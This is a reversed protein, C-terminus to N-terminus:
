GTSTPADIAPREGPALSYPPVELTLLDHSKSGLDVYLWDMAVPPPWQRPSALHERKYAERRQGLWGSQEGAAEESTRVLEELKELLNATEQPAPDNATNGAVSALKELLDEAFHRVKASRDETQRECRCGKAGPREVLSEIIPLHAVLSLPPPLMQPRPKGEPSYVPDIDAIVLAQERKGLRGSNFQDPRYIGPMSGHYPGPGPMGSAKGGERGWSDHGVICSQGCGFRGAVANCFVTTVASALFSAQGLISFDESRTTMAPVLLLLRPQDPAYSLSTCRAFSLIDQNVHDQLEKFGRQPGEAFNVLLRQFGHVMGMLNAPSTVLFVESCILENTYARPDFQASTAAFEPALATVRPRFVESAAVAPYKKKRLRVRRAPEGPGPALIVPMVASWGAPQDEDPSVRLHMDPPQRYTGAWVSTSPALDPLVEVLWAATDPRISYEPLLLIDVSFAYCARLVSRLLARRRHEACSPLEDLQNWNEPRTILGEPAVSATKTGGRLCADFIPHRYTEDLEWQFLAVRAHRHAKEPRSRWSKMQRKQIEDLPDGTLATVVTPGSKVEAEAPPLAIPPEAAAVAVKPPAPPSEPPAEPEMAKTRETLPLEREGPATERPVPTDSSELDCLTALHPQVVGVALVRDGVVSQSWRFVYREGVLRQEVGGQRDGVLGAYSVRWSAFEYSGSNTELRVSGKRLDSRLRFLESRRSEVVIGIASDLQKTAALIESIRGETLKSALPALDDWPAEGVPDTSILLEAAITEIAVRAAYLAASPQREMAAAILRNLVISWGLPTVGGLLDLRPVADRATAEYVADFLFRLNQGAGVYAPDTEQSRHLLAMDDLLAGNGLAPDRRIRERDTDELAAWVELSQARLQAEISLLRAGAVLTKLAPDDPQPDEKALTDLRLALGLWARAPRRVPAWNPWAAQQSPLRAALEEDVRFQSRMLDVLLAGAGGALTFDFSCESRAHLARGEGFTAVLHALQRMQSQADDGAKAPFTRLRSLLREITKPFRQAAPVARTPPYAWGRLRALSFRLMAEVAWDSGDDMDNAKAALRLSPMSRSLDLRGLFDALATGARWLHDHQDAVPELMLGSGRRVFAQGRLRSTAVEYGLVHSPTDMPSDTIDPGLLNVATAACATEAEPPPRVALASFAEALWLLVKPPLQEGEKRPRLYHRQGLSATFRQLAHGAVSEDREWGLDPPCFPVTESPEFDVRIVSGRGPGSRHEVGVLGRVGVGPPTPIVEGSWPGERGSLVLRSLRARNQFLEQLHKPALGSLMRAAAWAAKKANTSSVQTSERFEPLLFGLAQLFFTDSNILNRFTQVSELRESLPALPDLRQTLAQARVPAADLSPNSAAIQLRGTAEHLLLWETAREDQLAARDLLGQDNGAQAISIVLRKEGPTREPQRAVEDAFWRPAGGDPVILIAARLIAMCRLRIMHRREEVQSKDFLGKVADCLGDRVLRALAERIAFLERHAEGSFSPDRDRRSALLRDIGELWALLDAIARGHSAREDKKGAAPPNSSSDWLAAFSQAAEAATAPASGAEPKLVCRWLHQAAKARDGHRLDFARRATRVAGVVEGSALRPNELWASHLIQLSDGRDVDGAEALPDLIGLVETSPPGDYAVSAGLGAGRESTLWERLSLEDMPPLPETKPSLTLGLAALGQEVAARMRALDHPTRAILVMDDVYRAYVGGATARGDANAGKDGRVRRDLDQVTAKLDHDLKFLAINALYASLDPGQPIGHGQREPFGTTPHEFLFNFSEDCLWDVIRQAREEHDAIHPLFLPACAKAGQDPAGERALISLADRLGPLLADIVISRPISDYFRRIDLRAVHLLPARCAAARRDIFAIFERWCPYYPRFMGERRPAVRGEVVDMDVQYAFSVVESPAQDRPGGTMWPRGGNRGPAYRIAPISASFGPVLSHERLLENLLYQQMTLREACPLAKPRFDDPPKPVRTAVMPEDITHGKELYEALSPISVEVSAELREWSGEDVPLERRQGSALAVQMARQLRNLDARSPPLSVGAVPVAVPRALLFSEAERRVTADLPDVSSELHRAFPELRAIARQWVEPKLLREVERYARARYSEPLGGCKQALETPECPLADSLLAEMASFTSRGLLALAQTQSSCNRLQEDPDAKKEGLPPLVVDLLFATADGSAAAEILRPLATRLAHRGPADSDLFIHVVLQCQDRDLDSALQAFLAAQDQTLQSGLVAVANLGLSELRLADLLGEVVFVDVRQPKGVAQARIASRVQDLRYLTQGRPFGPSYLYKPEEGPIVARGAFGVLTGRDDRLTFVVRPQYFFDRPPLETPLVGGTSPSLQLRRILGAALLNEITERGRKEAAVSLKQPEAAFVEAKVLMGPEFGRKAAFERLRERESPRQRKFIEHAFQLGAQRPEMAPLRAREPLPVQLRGSLWELATRFDCGRLKMLLGYVDGHAGCGFCHFQGKAEGGGPYFVLSPTRDEHFPCLAKPQRSGRGLVRM